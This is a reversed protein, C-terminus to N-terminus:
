KFFGQILGALGSGGGQQQNQQAQQTVTNIISSIDPMANGGGNGAVQNLLGQFDFGAGGANSQAANGGTFSSILDTLNFGNDEPANSQTKGILNNLVSPILNNSIGNAVAPSLNLKRVLNNALHGIMMSVIPNSLISQQGQGQGGGTFMSLISQLGGGSIVNQLGGTITKAAEAMVANNSENPVDPNAVVTNQSSQKVLDLIQELM